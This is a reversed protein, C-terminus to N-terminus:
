PALNKVELFEELGKVGYERGIGSAEYGGEVTAEPTSGFPRETVPSTVTLRGPGGPDAWQGGISLQDWDRIDSM